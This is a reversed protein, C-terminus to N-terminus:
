LISEQPSVQRRRQQRRDRAPVRVQPRPNSLASAAVVRGAQRRRRLASV